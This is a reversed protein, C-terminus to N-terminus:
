YKELLIQEVVDSLGNNKNIRKYHHWLPCYKKKSSRIREFTNNIEFKKIWSNKEGGIVSDYDSCMGTDTQFATGQPLVRLDSTPVHTHTGLVATVKGDIMYAFAQKELQKVM